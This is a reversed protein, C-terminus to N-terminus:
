VASKLNAWCGPDAGLFSGTAAFAANRDGGCISISRCASCKDIKGKRLDKLLKSNHYEIELGGNLASGIIIRSRSSALMNGQHDVVLGEFFRGSRGLGPHVLHMLPESTISRIGYISAARIIGRFADRLEIPELGRDHGAALLSSGFGQSIFRTFGVGQAGVEKALVFFDDILASTRKSLITIISVKLGLQRLIKIGEMSKKFSGLGRAIDHTAESPGDVSIQFSLNPFHRIKELINRGYGTAILTGNTIVIIRFISERARVNELLRYLFPSTFPEGGCIIVLPRYGMKKIMAEYQDLVGIWENLSLAGANLHDKHYCHVCSLNCANTIDIQIPFERNVQIWKVLRRQIWHLLHRLM